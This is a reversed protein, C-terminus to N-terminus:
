LWRDFATTEDDERESRVSRLDYENAADVARYTM